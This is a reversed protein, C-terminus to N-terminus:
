CLLYPYASSCLRGEHLPPLQFRKAIRHQFISYRRGEHLPPLQFQYNPIKEIAWNQRGEHLPPLQFVHTPPHFLTATTAGRTPAPTSIVNNSPRESRVNDGRTYPRSNFYKSAPTWQGLGHRGEHLPPLQFSHWQGSDEDLM